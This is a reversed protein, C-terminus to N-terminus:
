YWRADPKGLNIELIVIGWVSAIKEASYFLDFLDNAMKIREIIEKIKDDTSSLDYGNGWLQNSARIAVMEQLNLFLNKQANENNSFPLGALVGSTNTQSM